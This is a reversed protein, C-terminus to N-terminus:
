ETMEMDEKCFKNFEAEQQSIFEKALDNWNAEIYDKLKQQQTM